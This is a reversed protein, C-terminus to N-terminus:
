GPRATIRLEIRRNRAESVNDGTAVRLRTEGFGQASLRARAVGDGMLANYVDRARAESFALNRDAAGATDTFGQIQISSRDYHILVNAINALLAGGAGSIQTGDFLQDNRIVVVLDDGPRTVLAGSGRLRNRLDTEQADMYSGIAALQLPGASPAPVQTRPVSASQPARAPAPSELVFHNDPSSNCGALMLLAPLVLFRIKMRPYRHRLPPLHQAIM